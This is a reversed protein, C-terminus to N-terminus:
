QMLSTFMYWTTSDVEIVALVNNPPFMGLKSPKIDFAGGISAGQLLASEDWLKIQGVTLLSLM